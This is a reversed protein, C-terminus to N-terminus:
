GAKRRPAPHAETPGSSLLPAWESVQREAEDRTISYREQINGILWDRKGNIFDLDNDTLKSWKAKISGKMQEWKGEVQDWNM